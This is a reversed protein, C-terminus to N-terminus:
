FQKSKIKMLLHIIESPFCAPCSSVIAFEFLGNYLLFIKISFKKIQNWIIKPFIIGQYQLFFGRAAYFKKSSILNLTITNTNSIIKVGSKTGCSEYITNGHDRIRLVDVCSGDSEHDACFTFHSSNKKWVLKLLLDYHLFSEGRISLDHFTLVIRQGPRARFLWECTM